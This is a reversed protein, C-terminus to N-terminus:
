NERKVKRKEKDLADLVLKQYKIQELLQEEKAEPYASKYRQLINETPQTYDIKLKRAMKLEERKRKRKEMQKQVKRPLQDFPVKAAPEKQEKKDLERQTQKEIKKKEKAKQKQDRKQQLKEEQSM